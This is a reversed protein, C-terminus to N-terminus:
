ARGIKKQSGHANFLHCFFAFLWKPRNASFALATVSVIGGDINATTTGDPDVNQIVRNTGRDKSL